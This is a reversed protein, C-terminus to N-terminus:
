LIFSALLGFFLIFTPNLMHGFNQSYCFTSAYNSGGGVCISSPIITPKGNTTACATDSYSQQTVGVVSCTYMISVSGVTICVGAANASITQISSPACGAANYTNTTMYQGQIYVYTSNTCTIQTSQTTSPLCGSLTCSSTVTAQSLLSSAACTTGNYTFVNKFQCLTMTIM